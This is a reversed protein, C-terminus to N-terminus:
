NGSTRVADYLLLPSGLYVTKCLACLLPFFLVYEVLFALAFGLLHVNYFVYSSKLFFYM